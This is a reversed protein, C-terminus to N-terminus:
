LCSIRWRLQPGYRTEVWRWYYTPQRDRCCYRRGEPLVVCYSRSPAPRREIAKEIRYDSVAQPPPGEHNHEGALGKFLYPIAAVLLACAIKGFCSGDCAM